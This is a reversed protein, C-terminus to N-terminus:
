NLYLYKLKVNTILQNKQHPSDSFQVGILFEPYSSVEVKYLKLRSNFHKSYNIFILICTIPLEILINRIISSETVDNRITLETKLM